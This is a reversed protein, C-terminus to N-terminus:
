KKLLRLLTALIAYIMPAYELLLNYFARQYDSRYDPM